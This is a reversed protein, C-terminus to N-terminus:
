GNLWESTATILSDLREMDASSLTTGQETKLTQMTTLVSSATTKDGAKITELLVAILANNAPFAGGLYSKADIMANEKEGLCYEAVCIKGYIYQEYVGKEKNMAADRAEAYTEFAAEDKVFEKGCSLVSEYEEAGIAVETAYAIYYINKGSREYATTAFQVSASDLGLDYTFKMMTQPFAFCLTTFLMVCLVFIAAVTSLAARAIVKDVRMYKEEM